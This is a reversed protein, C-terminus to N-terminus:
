AEVFVCGNLDARSTSVGNLNSKVLSSIEEDDMVEGVVSSTGYGAEKLTSIVIDAKDRPVCTLLGGSTQPDFLLAFSPHSTVKSDELNIIQQASRHNAGFLSSSVNHEVSCRVAGPLIPLQSLFLRVVPLKELKDKDARTLLRCSNGNDEDDSENDYGETEEDSSSKELRQHRIMEVLHGMFGFGTVDTCASCGFQAVIKAAVMNSQVMSEYCSSIEYCSVFNRNPMAAALLVGAGLAKTLIIVQGPIVPGKYLIGVSLSSSTTSDNMVEPQVYGTLAFGLAHEAGETTHGGVLACDEKDLEQRAGALMHLLDDETVFEAGYPVSCLALASYPRALMAHLDSLAHNAAIRGFLYPDGVFSKFYDITQVMVMSKSLPTGTVPWQLVAADDGIGAMVRESISYSGSGSLVPLINSPNQRMHKQLRKIVRNLITSGVKSGCGACRCYELQSLIEFFSFRKCYFLYRMKAKDLLSQDSFSLPPGAM